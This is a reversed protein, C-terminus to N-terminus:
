PTAPLFAEIARRQGPEDIVIHLEAPFGTAGARDRFTEILAM